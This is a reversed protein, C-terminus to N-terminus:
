APVEVPTLALGANPAVAVRVLPAAIETDGLLADYLALDRVEVVPVVHAPRPPLATSCRQRATRAIAGPGHEPLIRLQYRGTLEPHEAVLAGRHLVRLEGARRQVEVTQGILLFPVSYRNTDVSVLWDEAVIRQLPAELRFSPQSTTPLLAPQEQGFRDIPREHTTGHLRVDAVTTMWELLAEDFHVDDIFERGPLFNHKFYKVGSEVKGKTQARYAQCM